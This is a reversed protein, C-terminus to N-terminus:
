VDPLAKKKANRRVIYYVIAAIILVGFVCCTTILAVPPTPSICTGPSDVTFQFGGKLGQGIAMGVIDTPFDTVTAVGFQYGFMTSSGDSLTAKLGNFTSGGNMGWSTMKTIREGKPVSM